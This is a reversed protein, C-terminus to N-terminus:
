FNQSLDKFYGEFLIGLIRAEFIKVVLLSTCWIYTQKNRQKNTQKNGTTRGNRLVKILTMAEKLLLPALKGTPCFFLKTHTEIQDYSKCCMNKESVDWSHICSWNLLYLISFAEAFWDKLILNTVGHVVYVFFNVDIFEERFQYKILYEM